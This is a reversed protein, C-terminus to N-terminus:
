SCLYLSSGFYISEEDKKVEKRNHILKLRCLFKHTTYGKIPTIKRPYVGVSGFGM